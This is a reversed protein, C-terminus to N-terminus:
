AIWGILIAITNANTHRCQKVTETYIEILKATYFEIREIIQTENFIVWNVGKVRESYANRQGLYGYLIQSLENKRSIRISEFWFRQGHVHVSFTIGDCLYELYVCKIHLLFTDTHTGCLLFAREKTDNQSKKINLHVNYLEKKEYSHVKNPLWKRKYRQQKTAKQTLIAWLKRNWKKNQWEMRSKQRRWKTFINCHFQPQIGNKQQPREPHSKRAIARKKKFWRVTNVHPM